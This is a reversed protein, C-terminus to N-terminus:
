PLTLRLDDLFVDSDNYSLWRTLFTVWVKGTLNVGVPTYGVYSIRSWTNFGPAPINVESTVFGGGALEMKLQLRL